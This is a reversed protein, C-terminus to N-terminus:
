PEVHILSTVTTEGRYLSPNPPGDWCAHLGDNVPQDLVGTWELTYDGPTRLPQITIDTFSIYIWHMPCDLGEEEPAVAHIPGYAARVEDPNMEWVVGESSNRLTLTEYSHNFYVRVLGKTAAFWGLVLHLPEDTTKVYTGCIEPPCQPYIPRDDALAPVAGALLAAVLLFSIVLNRRM